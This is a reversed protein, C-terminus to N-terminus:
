LVYLIIHVTQVIHTKRIGYALIYHLIIFYHVSPMSMYPAHLCRVHIYLVIYSISCRYYM